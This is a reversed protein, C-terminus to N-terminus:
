RSVCLVLLHCVERGEAPNSGATWAFLRGCVRAELVSPRQM